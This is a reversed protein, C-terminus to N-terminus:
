PHRAAVIYHLVAEKKAPDLEAKDGMRDVISPWDEDPIVTLDPYDHCANCKALFTERGANLSSETVGKWKTSAWTVSNPSLAGPAPASKPYCGTQMFGIALLAITSLGFEINKVHL